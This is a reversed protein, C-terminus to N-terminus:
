KDKRYENIVALQAPDFDFGYGFDRSVFASLMIGMGEEKPNVATSGDPLCWQKGVILFQKFICEDQGIMIIPRDEIKKRVSLYGGFPANAIKEHSNHLDDVHFEYM